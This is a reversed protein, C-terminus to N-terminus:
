RESATFEPVLWNDHCTWQHSTIDWRYYSDGPVALERDCRTRDRENPAIRLGPILNYLYASAAAAVLLGIFIPNGPGRSGRWLVLAALAILIVFVVLGFITTVRDAGASM